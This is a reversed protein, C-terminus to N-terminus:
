FRERPNIPYYDSYCSEALVIKTMFERDSRTLSKEAIGATFEEITRREERWILYKSNSIYHKQLLAKQGPVVAAADPAAGDAPPGL